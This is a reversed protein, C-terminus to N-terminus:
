WITWGGDIVLNHGTVYSSMDSALYAIAGKIDEPDAMRDMPTRTIYKSTFAMKQQESPRYVGGPSICNVRVDPALITALYRTLHIIGAKSVGYGVPNAMETGAYLSYDPAVMGYISSFLIVAGRHRQALYPAAQQTIYFASTLNVRIADDWAEIRQERFPRNWGIKRISGTYGACHVIIDLRGGHQQALQDIAHRTRRENRIDIHTTFLAQHKDPTNLVSIREALKHADIDWLVLTAGMELLAEEAVLALNGAGGIILAVRDEMDMMQSLM